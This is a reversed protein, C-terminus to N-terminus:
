SDYDLLIYVGGLWNCPNTIIKSQNMLSSIQRKYLEHSFNIFIFDQLFTQTKNRAAVIPASHSGYKLSSWM